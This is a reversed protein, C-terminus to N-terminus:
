KDRGLGTNTTVARYDDRPVNSQNPKKASVRGTVAGLSNIYPNYNSLIAERTEKVMIDIYKRVVKKRKRPLSLYLLRGKGPRSSYTKVIARHRRSKM